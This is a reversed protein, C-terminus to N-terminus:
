WTEWVPTCGKPLKCYQGLESWSQGTQHFDSGCSALLKKDNCLKALDKTVTPIQRGSIVEMGKGGVTIFDELCEHLKTRTLKYKAPHALVPTGGADRIWSVIQELSSWTQKCYAPKSTGLYKDFAASFDNVMGTQVMYEAFHPRGINGNASYKNAGNLADELGLKELKESIKKARQMRMLSQQRIAETTANSKLNINLGLVHIEIKRWQTSFEIGPIIKPNESCTHDITDYGATTDHDTISLVDVCFGRARNILEETTLKGDSATTHTHLDAIM